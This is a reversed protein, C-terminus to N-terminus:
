WSQEVCHVDSVLSRTVDKPQVFLTWKGMFKASVRQVWSNLKQNFFFSIEIDPDRPFTSEFCPFHIQGFLSVLQEEDEIHSLHPHSMRFYSVM